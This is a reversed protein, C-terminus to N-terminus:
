EGADGPADTQADEAMQHRNILPLQTLAFAFTLPLLGFVKFNVWADTSLSRWVGENLFAMAVFFIAWRLSLQKWGDDSLQFAMEFIPKLLPRKFILGGFLAAAFLGNIITPKMKIFTEDQLWLTLGGFVGIIIASFLPVKPIRRTLAWSVAVAVATAGIIVATATMLGGQYYAIFFAALPGAEVLFKVAGNM